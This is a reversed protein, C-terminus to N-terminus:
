KQIIPNLYKDKYRCGNDNCDIKEICYFQKVDDDYYLVPVEMGDLNQCESVINYTQQAWEIEQYVFGGIGTCDYEQLTILHGVFGGFAILCCSIFIISAKNKYNM